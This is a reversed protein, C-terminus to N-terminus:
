ITKVSHASGGEDGCRSALWASSLYGQPLSSASKREAQIRCSLDEPEDTVLGVDLPDAEQVSCVKLKQIQASKAVARGEVVTM